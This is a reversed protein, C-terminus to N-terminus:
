FHERYVAQLNELVKKDLDNWQDFNNASYDKYFSLFKETENQVDEITGYINQIACDFSDDIVYIYFNLTFYVFYLHFEQSFTNLLRGIETGSLGENTEAITRCIAEIVSASLVPRKITNAM